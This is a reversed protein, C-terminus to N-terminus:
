KKKLLQDQYSNVLFLGRIFYKKHEKKAKMTQKQIKSQNQDILIQPNDKKQEEPTSAGM